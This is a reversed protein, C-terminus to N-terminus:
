YTYKAIRISTRSIKAGSSVVLERLIDQVDEERALAIGMRVCWYYGPHHPLIKVEEFPDGPKIKVGYFIAEAHPESSHFDISFRFGNGFMGPKDSEGGFFFGDTIDTAIGETARVFLTAIEVAETAKRRTPRQFRHEVDHRLLRVRDVLSPTFAGLSELFRYVFPLHTPAARGEIMRVLSKGLQVRLQTPAFGLASTMREIQCDMARKANSIANVYGRLSKSAIDETGFRLFDSPMLPFRHTLKTGTDPTFVLNRWDLNSIEFLHSLKNASM